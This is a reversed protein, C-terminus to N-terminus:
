LNDHFNNILNEILYRAIELIEQSASSEPETELSTLGSFMSSAFIIRSGLSFRTIDEAFFQDINKVLKSQYPCRNLILIKKKNEKDIIELTKNTAWFDAPSPQCPIIVLDAARISSKTETEM